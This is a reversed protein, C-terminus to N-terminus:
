QGAGREGFPGTFLTVLFVDIARLARPYVADAFLQRMFGTAAQAALFAMFAFVGM